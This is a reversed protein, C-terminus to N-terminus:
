LLDGPRLEVRIWGGDYGKFQESGLRALLRVANLNITYPFYVIKRGHIVYLWTLAAGIDVHIPSICDKTSLLLFEKHPNVWTSDAKGITTQGDRAIRQILDSDMIPTPCCQRIRNEIDLCNLATRSDKEWHKIVDETLRRETREVEKDISYDYVDVFKQRNKRMFTWFTSWSVEPHSISRSATSQFLLPRSFQLELYRTLNESKDITIVDEAVLSPDHYLATILDLSGRQFQARLNETNQSRTNAWRASQDLKQIFSRLSKAGPNNSTNFNLDYTGWGPVLMEELKRTKQRKRKSSAVWPGTNTSDVAPSTSM